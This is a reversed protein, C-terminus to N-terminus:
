KGLVKKITKYVEDMDSIYELEKLIGKERYYDILPLTQKNYEELRELFVEKTDDARVVLENGCVDCIGEKKPPLSKLSYTAGCKLCTRRNSIRSVLEEEPVNLNVVADLSIKLDSLMVDLAKAQDVTRPFGDLVFGNKCDDEMLRAKAIKIIIDDPVLKGQDMYEKARIGLETGNKINERLINGTSIHALNFEDVLFKVNTGKGSAPAGLLIVRM